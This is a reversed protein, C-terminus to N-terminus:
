VCILINLIKIRRGTSEMTTESTMAKIPIRDSNLRGMVCNGEM